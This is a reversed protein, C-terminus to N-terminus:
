TNIFLLDGYGWVVTGLIITFLVAKDFTKRIKPVKWKEPKAGYYATSEHAIENLKQQTTYNRFQIFVCILVVLPGSRSFWLADSTKVSAYASVLMIVYACFLLLAEIIFNSAKALETERNM